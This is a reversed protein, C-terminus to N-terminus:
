PKRGHHDPALREPARALRQNIESLSVPRYADNLELRLSVGNVNGSSVFEAM